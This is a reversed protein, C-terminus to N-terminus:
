FEFLLELFGAALDRVNGKAPQYLDRFGDGVLL